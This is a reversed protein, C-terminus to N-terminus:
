SLKWKSAAGVTGGCAAATSTGDDCLGQSNDIGTALVLVQVENVTVITATNEYSRVTGNNNTIKLNYDPLDDLQIKAADAAGTEVPQSNAEAAPFADLKAFETNFQNTVHGTVRFKRYLNNSNYSTGTITSEKADDDWTSPLVEVTGM